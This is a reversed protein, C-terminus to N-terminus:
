LAPMDGVRERGVVLVPALLAPLPELLVLPPLAVPGVVVDLLQDEEVVERVVCGTAHQIKAAPHSSMEPVEHADGPELHMTVVLAARHHLTAERPRRLVPNVRVD